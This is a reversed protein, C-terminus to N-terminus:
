IQQKLFNRILHSETLIQPLLNITLITIHVQFKDSQSLFVYDHTNTCSKGGKTLAKRNERCSCYAVYVSILLNSSILLIRSTIIYSLYLSPTDKIIKVFFDFTVNNIELYKKWKQPVFM